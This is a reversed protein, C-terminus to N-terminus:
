LFRCVMVPFRRLMVFVRCAMVLFGRFVVVGSRGFFSRMVRVGRVGVMEVGLMQGVFGGLGVGLRVAGCLRRASRLDKDSVLVEGEIGLRATLVSSPIKPVM